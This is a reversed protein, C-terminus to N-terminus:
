IVDIGFRSRHRIRNGTNALTAKTVAQPYIYLGWKQTKIAQPDDCENDEIINNSCYEAFSIAGINQMSIGGRNNSIARNKRIIGDSQRIFLFGCFQCDQATNGVFANRRAVAGPYAGAGTMDDFFGYGCDIFSCRTVQIDSPARDDAHRFRMGGNPCRLAICDSFIHGSSPNIAFGSGLADIRRDGGIAHCSTFRCRNANIYFGDDRWARVTCNEYVGDDTAVYYGTHSREVWCNRVGSADTAMTIGRPTGSNGAEVWSSANEVTCESILNARSWGPVNGFFGLGTGVDAVRCREISSNRANLIAIGSKAFVPGAASVPERHLGRVSLDTVHIDEHTEDHRTSIIATAPFRAWAGASGTQQLITKDPGRGRLRIGSRLLIPTCIRYSKASLFVTGGGKSFLEAIARNIADGDCTDGSKAMADAALSRGATRTSRGGHSAANACGPLIFGTTIAAVM